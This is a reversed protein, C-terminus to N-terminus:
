AEEKTELKFGSAMAAEHAREATDPDVETWETGIETGDVTVTDLPWPARLHVTGDPRPADPETGAADPASEGPEVRAPAAERAANRGRVRQPGDPAAQAADVPAPPPEPPSQPAPTVQEDTM